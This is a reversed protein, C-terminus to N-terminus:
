FRSIFGFHIKSLNVQMRQGQDRGLAYVFNFVGPGSAFSFGFGLGLPSDELFSQDLDFYVYGQDVFVFTYTTAELFYRAEVTGVAYRSAFFYNENFGRFSMLGGLRFLENQLLEPTETWGSQARTMLSFANSFRFYRVINGQFTWQTTSLTLESPEAATSTAPRQQRRRNGALATIDIYWGKKPYLWDNLGSWQYSLGYSVIRVASISPSSTTGLVDSTKIGTIVQLNAGSKFNYGLSVRRDINIFTTDEKLFDFKLRVDIPSRFLRPHLYSLNLLQSLPRQRMWQVNLQKGSSFLNFLKLNFEGTLLLRNQRTENPLLGVVGDVQNVSRANIPLYLTARGMSYQIEPSQTLTLYPLQQVRNKISRIAEEDYPEGPKIELLASLFAPKLKATGKILLTDYLIQPGKTLQLIASIRGMGVSLTDLYVSAFPYGHAAMYEVMDKKHEEVRSPSIMSNRFLPSRIGLKNRISMSIGSSLSLSDWRYRPGTHVLVNLLSDATTDALQFAAELYGKNVLTARNSELMRIWGKRDAKGSKMPLALQWHELGEGLLLGSSVTQAMSMSPLLLIFAAVSLRYMQSLVRVRFFQCAKINMDGKASFGTM